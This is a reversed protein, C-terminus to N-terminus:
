WILPVLRYRVRDRYARYGPLNRALFHEENVLRWVLAPVIAVVVLVGWASGLAIPIGFLMVLGAAYMPHRIFAYPGTSIVRQNASVEITASSFSNERFVFFIGLWGLLVLGDGILVADLALSSWALRHDIAPVLILGIFGVSALSMIIRQAPEREAWPGGSMRRAALAPDNRILYVTMACAAAFYIALFSWAQWYRFTGAGAFLLSAMVVFLVLLGIFSRRYLSNM